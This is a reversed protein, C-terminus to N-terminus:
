AMRELPYPVFQEDLHRLIVGKRIEPRRVPEGYLIRRLCMEVENFGCLARLPTAGSFRANIEFLRPRGGADVRFQFNAPGYPKLARAVTRVYDALEPYDDAFARHTNGDRLERRMVIEAQPEDDFCLVSSTYEADASGAWQQVVLGQQASIADRLEDRNRVVSVGYSRAGIRPKVVLPFGTAEILEELAPGDEPLVSLPHCIGNEALFRATLYKDDAVAIVTENSVLIRTGFREEWSHRHRAFIPLEVDTGVLVADPREEQLIREFAAAYGPDRALPVLRQKEAWYLGSALPDPDCAIIRPQLTSARLAKIIGQGLVAGAGTVLITLM